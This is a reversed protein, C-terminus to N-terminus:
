VVYRITDGVQVELAEATERKLHVSGDPNVSLTEYVGRFDILTNSILFRPSEQYEGYGAVVARKSDRVTQIQHLTAQLTPGADFIDVYGRFTFGERGLLAAAPRTAEHVVGIVEQAEKPLLLVYIPYRPMLDSIFQKNGVASLYDAKSFDMDFFHSGLNRWFPSHGAENQVGRMEAIVTQHFRDSHEAMFLFRIRSLLRGGGSKRYNQNLFLTCVESVGTLDNVLALTQIKKNIGLEQSFQILTSLKYSYFPDHSGTSSMVGSTGVIKKTETDELGLLYYEDEPLTIDEHFSTLSSCIKEKLSARNAPLTTMGVGSEIALQELEDLDTLRIPRVRLM